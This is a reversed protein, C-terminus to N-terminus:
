FHSLCSLYVYIKPPLNMPQPAGWPNICSSMKYYLLIISYKVNDCLSKIKIDFFAAPISSNDSDLPIFPNFAKMIVKAPFNDDSFTLTAIPFKGDFKVNKFHPFGCMTNNAPGFGYGNFFSESNAYQGMFDKIHDGQLIKTISRGDSFDAKIVFFSYDNLSGKNPRNFVEWDVLAGNSALGITGSGIGGLPFVIEKM